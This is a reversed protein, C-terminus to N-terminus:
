PRSSSKGRRPKPARRKAAKAGGEAPWPRFLVRKAGVFVLVGAKLAQGQTLLPVLREDSAYRAVQEAAQTFAREVQASKAGAPLYKLELLWAFKAAPYLPSVGLFLDCYGQAFEKESLPHFLRSLSIFALLMLKISKEDFRRLDKLGVAKIVREHFLDLFPAIDGELAMAQLTAEIERTDIVLEAEESLLKALHEWQLERIVRNPIELRPGFTRAPRDPPETGLTLMGLYYLLSIFQDQSSLSKLGFQRILPSQLGGESVITELLARRETRAAGSLLGIRQLRRYDTRVNLDLMDVPYRGQDLVEYLFYLVMDSNFVREAENSAFRYGDYYQELVELLRQRDALGPQSALSPRTRLLADVVQEVDAHTFGALANFHPSSSIHSAINFGSSLDDLLLPAVGTIFMRGVAGSATGAKLAAYFTRVFSTRRVLAEHGSQSADSLLRNAFNDYEDILLYVKQDAGAVIDLLSGILSAADKQLEIEADLDRLRPIRDGYRMVFIRVRSRVTDSFSERLADEGGEVAVQSFDFSLVLYRNREPTPHEHIWLGRFLEDFRETRAVDYYHELLSLFLSKGIRRPRLFLLYRPGIEELLPLFPTKDVYTYGGRRLDGFNSIGYPIKMGRLEAPVPRVRGRVGQMALLLNFQILPEEHGGRCAGAFARMTTGPRGLLRPLEDTLPENRGTRTLTYVITMFFIVDAAVGRRAMRLWFAPLSPAAYRIPRGLVEALIEAM